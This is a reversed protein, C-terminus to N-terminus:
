LGLHLTIFREDGGDRAFLGHGWVMGRPIIRCLHLDGYIFGTGPLRVVRLGIVIQDPLDDALLGHLLKSLAIRKRAIDLSRDGAEGHFIM